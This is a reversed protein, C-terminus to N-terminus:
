LQRIDHSADGGSESACDWTQGISAGSRARANNFAQLLAKGQGKSGQGKSCHCAGAALLLFDGLLKAADVPFANKSFIEMYFANQLWANKLCGGFVFSTFTALRGFM